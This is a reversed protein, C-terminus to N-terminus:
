NYTKFCHIFFSSVLMAFSDVFNQSFNWGNFKDARPIENAIELAATFEVALSIGDISKLVSDSTLLMCFVYRCVFISSLRTFISMRCKRGVIQTLTLITKVAIVQKRNPQGIIRSKTQTNITMLKMGHIVFRRAYTM